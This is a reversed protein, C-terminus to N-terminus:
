YYDRLLVADCRHSRLIALHAQDLAKMQMNRRFIYAVAENNIAKPLTTTAGNPPKVLRGWWVRKGINRTQLM